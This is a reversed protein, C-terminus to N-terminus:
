GEGLRSVQDEYQTTSIDKEFCGADQLDMIAQFSAVIRPDTFETKGDM